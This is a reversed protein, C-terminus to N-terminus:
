KWSDKKIIKRISYGAITGIVLYAVVIEFPSLFM